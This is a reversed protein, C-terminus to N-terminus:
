GCSSVSSYVIISESRSEVNKKQKPRKVWNLINEELLWLLELCSVSIQFGLRLFFFFVLCSLMAQSVTISMVTGLLAFLPSLVDAGPDCLCLAAVLQTLPGTRQPLRCQEPSPLHAISPRM